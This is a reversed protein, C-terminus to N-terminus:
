RREREGMSIPQVICVAAVACRRRRDRAARLRGQPGRGVFPQADGLLQVVDDGVREAHDGHLGTDPHVHDVGVAGFGPSRKSFM